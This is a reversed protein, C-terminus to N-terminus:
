LLNIEQMSILFTEFQNQENIIASSSKIKVNYYGQNQYYKKLRVIDADIRNSDLFKNRTLFKWFKAEESIIINRM